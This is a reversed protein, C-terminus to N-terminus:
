YFWTDFGAQRASPASWWFSDFDPATISVFFQPDDSLALFREVTLAIRLLASRHERANELRYVARKRPSVYGLRADVNDSIGGAYLAVQRAHNVKISSPIKDTTKLDLLIGHDEWAFDYYGLIPVQLEDPQWVIKGQASTPKGYPRFEALASRVMGDIDARHAERRPDGSLATLRDYVKLAEVVAEDDTADQMLGAAM